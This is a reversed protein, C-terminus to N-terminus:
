CGIAGLFTFTIRLSLRGAPDAVGAGGTPGARPCCPIGMMSKTLCYLSLVLSWFPSMMGATM